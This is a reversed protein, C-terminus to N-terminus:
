DNRNLVQLGTLYITAGRVKNKVKMFIPVKAVMKYKADYLNAFSKTLDQMKNLKGQNAFVVRYYMVSSNKLASAMNKWNKENQEKWLADVAGQIMSNRAM